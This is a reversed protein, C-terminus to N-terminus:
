KTQPQAILIQRPLQRLGEFRVPLPQVVGRGRVVLSERELWLVSIDFRLAALSCIVLTCPYPFHCNQKPVAIGQLSAKTNM